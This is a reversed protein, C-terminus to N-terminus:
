DCGEVFGRLSPRGAEVESLLRGASRLEAAGRMLLEQAGAGVKVEGIM